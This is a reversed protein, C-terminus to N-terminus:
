KQREVPETTVARAMDCVFDFARSLDFDMYDSERLVPKLQTELQGKLRELRTRGTNVVGNGPIALKQKVLGILKADIAEIGHNRALYDLDYFDRIAAETRTMAARFKEAVAEIRSICPLSLPLIMPKNSAPDILITLASGTIIEEVLPERLSIEVAIRNEQKDLFSIYVLGCLYHTSGNAGRLPELVRFCPRKVTLEEIATRIERMEESRRARSADTPIPIVLDIDESMRYFEAHVKALCTGGKFAWKKGGYLVLHELLVSCFYDKEILRPSFLTSAATFQIAEKFLDPDEHVNIM